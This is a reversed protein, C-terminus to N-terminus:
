EPRKWMYVNRDDVQQGNPEIGARETLQEFAAESIWLADHEAYKQMHGAVDITFDSMQEMPTEDDTSVIGYNGGARVQFPTSLKSVNRNFDPLSLLIDQACNVAAQATRFAAMQGDPTWTQKYAGHRRLKGEVLARYDSFAQDIVYPDEGQKMRTSGVVDLSLFTLPVETTALAAKAETYNAVAVRRMANARRRELDADAASDKQMVPGATTFHVRPRLERLGWNVLVRGFILLPILLFPGSAEGGVTAPFGALGAVATLSTWVPGLVNDLMLSPPLNQFEPVLLFAIKGISALVGILLLSNVVRAFAGVIWDHVRTRGIAFSGAALVAAAGLWALGGRAVFPQVLTWELEGTWEGPGGRILFLLIVSSMGFGLWVMWLRFYRVLADLTQTMM